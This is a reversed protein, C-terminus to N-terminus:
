VNETKNEQQEDAQDDKLAELEEETYLSKDEKVKKKSSGFTSYAILNIVHSFYNYRCCQANQYKRCQHQKIDPQLIPNKGWGISATAIRM